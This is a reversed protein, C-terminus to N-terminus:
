LFNGSKRNHYSNSYQRLYEDQDKYCSRYVNQITDEMNLERFLNEDYKVSWTVDKDVNGGSSKSESANARSAREATEKSASLLSASALNDITVLQSSVEVCSAMSPLLFFIMCCSKLKLTLVASSKLQKCKAILLNLLMIVNLLLYNKIFVVFLVFNLNDFFKLFFEYNIFYFIRLSKNRLNSKHHNHRLRKLLM